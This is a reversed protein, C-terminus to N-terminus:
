KSKSLPQIFNRFSDITEQQFEPRWVLPIKWETGEALRVVLTLEEDYRCFTSGVFLWEEGVPHRDGDADVFSQIVRYRSQRHLMSSEWDWKSPAIIVPNSGTLFPGNM